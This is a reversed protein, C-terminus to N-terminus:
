TMNTPGAGISKTAFDHEAIQERIIREVQPPTWGEPKLRKGDDRVPGTTKEMNARQVEDWVETLGIGLASATGIAVYMLDVIGDAVDALLQVATAPVPKGRVLEQMQVLAAITEDFEETILDIRLQLEEPPALSPKERITQGMSLMFYDVDRQIDM